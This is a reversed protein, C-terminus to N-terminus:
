FEITWELSLNADGESDVESALVVQPRLYWAIRTSGLSGEGGSAFEVFLSETIYRGATVTPGEDGADISLEDLGLRDRVRSVVDIDEGTAFSALAASLQAAQLASLDGSDENFLIRSLIESDPLQPESTLDITPDKVTGTATLIATGNQYAHTARADIATDMPEGDFRLVAREVEFEVGLATVAGQLAEARGDLRVDQPTGKARVDLFWETDAADSRLYVRRDAQVRVDFRIPFDPVEAREDDTLQRHEPRGVEEDVTLPEVDEGGPLIEEINLALRRLRVEGTLESRGKPSATFTLDADARAQAGRRSLVEFDEAMLNLERLRTALDAQGSLEIRGGRGDTGSGEVRVRPGTFAATAQLQRIEIGARADEVVGERVQLRGRLLPEALTGNASLEGQLLGTIRQEENLFPTVLPSLPGEIRGSGEIQADDAFATTAGAESM